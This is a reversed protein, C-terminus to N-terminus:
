RKFIDKLKDKIKKEVEKKAEGKLYGELDPRVKPDSLSGTVKVPIQADVMDQMQTTTTDAGERPIKLVAAVLRYDLSNRPLDVNGQGTVKLYQMAVNLDNNTLVGDKMAGTGTLASFPTRPPGGPREPVAQQKLVARARRIEYWLDAGELAGDAVNFDVAGTLTKMIDDSTRGSGALKINASGKGSVRNSEFLDKFLPAFNVSSVHEDLTVRAVKGTSDIGIDGRYQGGYMSAESPYFRAKGERSNVGLRLKTFKMGAFIAEGVTLQGRANLKRLLDVPIEAPPEKADKAAPKESSPPLYRDADIRDINLDFRLAKAAFDAVGVLGRMTTDDLKMVIDGVEASSKTLRVNGAFSLQKLVNPDTTKPAAVGVKPLWERLSLPELKISGKLTPADLIEAGTLSGTVHAGAANADLGGLELTQSALNVNCDKAKFDVPVGAAPLGDSKWTTKIALDALSYLEKGIDAELSQARVEVPVGNAPYGAGSVTVDIKPAALRHVNRELDATVKAAVKVKATLSRDQDLVFDTAFDFPEGSALRGTKLNFDRVERRSKEKRNEMVVAADNIELGAVTPVGGTGSQTQPQQEAGESKGLDAWNDRGREDTILRIRAGDLRVNGVELKGSLLPMLRVSVRAHKISAFPEPGFGPADGLSAAGTELAIWPFVSLKLDGSLTLERGTKEKVLKQIDDRYDNPDVFVLVLVLGIVILGILGAAIYAVIRLPRM